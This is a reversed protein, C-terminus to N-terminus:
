ERVYKDFMAAARAAYIASSLEGATAHQSADVGLSRADRRQLETPLKNRWASRKRNFATQGSARAKGQAVGMAHKLPLGEAEPYREWKKGPAAFGVDYLPAGDAATGAPWLFVM